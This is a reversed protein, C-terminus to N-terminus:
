SMIHPYSAKLIYIRNGYQAIIILTSLYSVLTEWEMFYDELYIKDIMKFILVLPLPTATSTM